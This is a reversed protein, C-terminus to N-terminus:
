RFSFVKEVFCPFPSHSVFHLRYVDAGARLKYQKRANMVDRSLINIFPLPWEHSFHRIQLLRIFVFNFVSLSYSYDKRSVYQSHSPQITLLVVCFLSFLIRQFQIGTPLYIYKKCIGNALRMEKSNTFMFFSMNSEVNLLKSLTEDWNNYAKNMECESKQSKWRLHM